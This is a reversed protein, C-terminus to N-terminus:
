LKKKLFTLLSNHKTVSEVISPGRKQFVKKIIFSLSPKWRAAYARKLKRLKM